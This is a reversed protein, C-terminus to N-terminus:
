VARIYAATKKLDGLNGYLKDHQPCSQLVHEATMAAASRRCEGSQGIGFKTFLHHRLRNHGTRLRFIKVQEGRGLLHYNDKPDHRPHKQQWIKEEPTNKYNDESRPLVRPQQDARESSRRWRARGGKRKSQNRLTCTGMPTRSSPSCLEPCCARQCTQDAGKRQLQQSSRTSLSLTLSCYSRAQQEKRTRHCREPLKGYPKRRQGTTPPTSAPQRQSNKKETRTSYSSRPEETRRTTQTSM